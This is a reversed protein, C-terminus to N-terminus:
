KMFCTKINRFISLVWGPNFPVHGKLIDINKYKEVIEPAYLCDKM